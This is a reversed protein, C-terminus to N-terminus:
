RRQLSVVAPLLLLAQSREYCMGCVRRAWAQVNYNYKSSDPGLYVDLCYGNLLTM